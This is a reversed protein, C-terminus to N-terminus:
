KGCDGCTITCEKLNQDGESKPADKISAHDKVYSENELITPNVNHGHITGMHANLEEQNNSDFECNSCSLLDEISKSM